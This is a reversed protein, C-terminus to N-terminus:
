PSPEGARFGLSAPEFRSNVALTRSIAAEISCRSPHRLAKLMLLFNSLCLIYLDEEVWVEFAM